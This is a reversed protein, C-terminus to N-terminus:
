QIKNWFRLLEVELRSSFMSNSQLNANQNFFEMSNEFNRLKKDNGAEKQLIVPRNIALNEIIIPLKELEKRHLKALTKWVMTVYGAFPYLQRGDIVHDLLYEEKEKSEPNFPDVTYSKGAAKGSNLSMAQEKTIAPWDQSHDWQIMPSIM